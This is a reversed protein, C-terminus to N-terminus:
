VMAAAMIVLLVKGYGVNNNSDVSCTGGGVENGVSSISVVYGDGDACGVDEDGNAIGVDEEGNCVGGCGCADTLGVTDDIYGCGSACINVLLM